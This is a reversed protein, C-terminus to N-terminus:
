ETTNGDFHEHPHREEAIEKTEHIIGDKHEAPSYITYFKLDTDGINTVNHESGAPVIVAWDDTVETENGDIFVKAKGSEFRFFQDNVEHVEQGIDEGPKLSMVVLQSFKGTYLVKRFNDNNKTIEEINQIYGKKM